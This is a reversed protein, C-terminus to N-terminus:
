AARAPWTRRCCTPTSRRCSRTRGRGAASWRRPGGRVGARAAALRDRSAAARPRARRCGCRCRISSSRRLAGVNVLALAVLPLIVARANRSSAACVLPMMAGEGTEDASAADRGPCTSARAADGELQGEDNTREERALVEAFAGTARSRRSSSTSTRSRARSWPSADRRLPGGTSRRIAGGDAARRAAADGRPPQVAGDLLVHAPRDARQGRAGRAVRARATAPDVSARARAAQTACTARRPARRERTRAACSRTTRAVPRGAPEVNFVTIARSSCRRVRAAGHAGRARQLLAPDLPEHAADPRGAGALLVGVAAGAHRAAGADRAIRDTLTSRRGRISRRSARASASRSSAACRSPTPRSEAGRGAAPAPWCWARSARRRQLRDEHYM